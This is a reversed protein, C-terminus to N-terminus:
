SPVHREGARVALPLRNAAPALPCAWRGDYSCSPNYAFNFDLVATRASTDFGLDSGKVTDVLYRGGGYTSEGSTEDTFAIFIGGGYGGNWAIELEHEVGNLEFRAVGIRTFAFTGGTSARIDRREPPVDEIAALARFSPDYAYFSCGAFNDRRDKPIPSQPHAAYLQDRTARWRRWADAPDAAARVDGYLHFIAHKWELLDLADTATFGAGEAM